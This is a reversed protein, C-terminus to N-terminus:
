TYKEQPSPIHLYGPASTVHGICPGAVWARKSKLLEIVSTIAASAQRSTITDRTIPHVAFM